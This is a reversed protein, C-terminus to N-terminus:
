ESKIFEDSESGAMHPRSEDQLVMCSFHLRTRFPGLSFEKHYHRHLHSGRCLQLARTLTGCATCLGRLRSRERQLVKKEKARVKKQAAFDEAAQAEEAAKKTAEEAEAKEKDEFKKRNAADREQKRRERCAGSVHRDLALQASFVAPAAM